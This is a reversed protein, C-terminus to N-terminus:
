SEDEDQEVPLEVEMVGHGAPCNPIGIDIWKKTTRLIYGCNACQCKVMRTSQKKVPSKTLDLRSNPYPGLDAAIQELAVVAVDGAHTATMKGDLGVATACKKFVKNHKEKNGVVPHCIEHLLTPLVGMADKSSEDCHIPHELFPSIFIQAIGDAAANPPWAQGLTRRKKATGGSSPWGGSVRLKPVEYGNNTFMPTLKEIAASLWEERTKYSM